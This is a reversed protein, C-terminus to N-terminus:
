PMNEETSSAAHLGCASAPNDVTCSLLLLLSICYFSFTKINKSAKLNKSLGVVEVVMNKDMERINCCFIIYIYM